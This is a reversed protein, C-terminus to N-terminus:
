HLKPNQKAAKEDLKTDFANLQLSDSLSIIYFYDWVTLRAEFLLDYAVSLGGFGM